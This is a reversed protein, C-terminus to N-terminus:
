SDVGGPSNNFDCEAVNENFEQEVNYVLLLWFNVLFGYAHM